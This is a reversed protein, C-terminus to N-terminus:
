ALIGKAYRTNQGPAFIATLVDRRPDELRSDPIAFHVWSGEYILQDFGIPSDLLAQCIQQPTGYGPCIFDAALGLLHASQPAGGILRNVDASRYGSTIVIPHGGLLLRIQELACALRRLNERYGPLPVNRLGARAAAQSVTLESLDFHESLPDTNSTM